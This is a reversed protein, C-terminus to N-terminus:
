LTLIKMHVDRNICIMYQIKSHVTPELYLKSSSQRCYHSPLKPLSDFFTWLFQTGEEKKDKKAHTHFVTSSSSMGHKSNELWYRISWDKIALTNLFLKKCVQFKENGVHFHYLLTGKRRSESTSKGPRKTPIVDVLGNVYQKRQDWTM